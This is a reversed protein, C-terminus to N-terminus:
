EKLVYNQNEFIQILCLLDNTSTIPFYKCTIIYRLWFSNKCFVCFLILQPVTIFYKPDQTDFILDKYSVYKLFVYVFLELSFCLSFYIVRFCFDQFFPVHNMADSYEFGLSFFITSSKLVKECISTFFTFYRLICFDQILFHSQSVNQKLYPFAKNIM